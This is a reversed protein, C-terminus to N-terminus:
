FDVVFISITERAGVQLGFVEIDVLGFKQKFYPICPDYIAKKELNVAEAQNADQEM